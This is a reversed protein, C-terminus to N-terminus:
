VVGVLAMLVFSITLSAHFSMQSSVNKCEFVSGNKKFKVRSNLWFVMEYVCM